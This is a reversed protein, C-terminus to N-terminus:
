LLHYHLDASENGLLAWGVKHLLGLGTLPSLNCLEELSVPDKWSKQPVSVYLKPLILYTGGQNVEVRSYAEGDEGLYISKM